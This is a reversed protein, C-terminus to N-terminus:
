RLGMKYDHLQIVVINQIDEVSKAQSLTISLHKTTAGPLNQLAAVVVWKECMGEEIAGVKVYLGRIREVGLFLDDVNNEAVPKM